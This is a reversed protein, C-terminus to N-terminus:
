KRIFDKIQKSTIELPSQKEVLVKKYWENTVNVSETISYKPKWNLKTKAKKIDLQLNQQEYFKQKKNFKVKGQGWFRVIKKVIELVSTITNKPTGFNWPGSYKKPEKYIKKALILYGLLPELVHQWPRNFKPNRLYITKNKLISNITDPILRNPSWDGGGIVNGARVTAIGCKNKKNFFSKIYTNTIIEACAKSGSYPDAGGLKDDEKFARTSHSNEYCKDSTVCILSKIFKSHRTIELINLTGISNIYYTSYPKLYSEYILPQAALHFIIQPRFNNVVKNLSSKNCVDTIKLNIIRELKLSYFLNKNKNPNYGIGCVNAGLIKLWLCLWSGKFGTAGTVLIKKNKYFKLINKDM